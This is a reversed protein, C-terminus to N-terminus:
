SLRDEGASAIAEPDGETAPQPISYRNVSSFADVAVSHLSGM